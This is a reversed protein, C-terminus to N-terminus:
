FLRRYSRATGQVSLLQLIFMERTHMPMVVSM